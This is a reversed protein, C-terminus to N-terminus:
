LCFRGWFFLHIRLDWVKFGQVRLGPMSNGFGLVVIGVALWSIGFASGTLIRTAARPRSPQHCQGNACSVQVHQFPGTMSGVLM